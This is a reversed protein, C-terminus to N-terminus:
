NKRQLLKRFTGIKHRSIWFLGSLGFAFGLFQIGTQFSSDITPASNFVSYGVNVGAQVRFILYDANSFLNVFHMNYILSAPVLILGALALSSHLLKNLKLNTKALNFLIISKSTVSAALL